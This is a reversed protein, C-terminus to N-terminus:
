INEELLDSQIKEIPLFPFDKVVPSYSEATHLCISPHCKLKEVEEETMGTIDLAAIVGARDCLDLDAEISKEKGKVIIFNCKEKRCFELFQRGEGKLSAHCLKCRVAKGNVNLVKRGDKEELSCNRLGATQVIIYHAKGQQYFVTKLEYLAPEGLPRPQWLLPNFIKVKQLFSLMNKGKQLSFKASEIMEFSDVFYSAILTSTAPSDLSLRPTIELLNGSYHFDHFIEIREFLKDQETM